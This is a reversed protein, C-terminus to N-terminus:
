EAEELDEWWETTFSEETFEVSSQFFLTDESIIAKEVYDFYELLVDCEPVHASVEAPVGRSYVIKEGTKQLYKLLYDLVPGRRVDNESLFKFDSRGYKLDFFTNRWATARKHRKKNYYEDPYLAGVMQGPPVYLLCHFHLRSTSEGREWVGMYNWGRRSQLHSLCMPLRKGFAAEDLIASDYTFTAFYNWPNMFAKRRFRKVREYLNHLEQELFAPVLTELVLPSWESSLNDICFATLKRRGKIGLSCATKYIERFAEQLASPPLPVRKKLKAQRSVAEQKIGVFHSGDNYIKYTPM